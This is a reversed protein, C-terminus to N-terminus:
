AFLAFTLRDDNGVNLSGFGENNWRLYEMCVGYISWVYDMTEISYRHLILPIDISSRRFMKPIYGFFVWLFFDKM